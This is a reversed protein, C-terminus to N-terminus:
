SAMAGATYSAIERILQQAEANRGELDNSLVVLVFPDGQPPWVIAADNEICGLGYGEPMEGTKNACQYGAPLGSPIKGRVTQGKLIALMKGSAEENVLKGEAIDSLIAAVDAASTYNDDTPNSELMKRGLHTSLYGHRECFANVADKGAQTNGQGLADILRNCAENSSVQIMQELVQRLEGGYSEGFPIYMDKSPPFCMYEYVAGMIFLKIVSASRLKDDGRCTSLRDTGLDKVAVGWHEGMLERTALYQEYILGAVGAMETDEGAAAGADQFMAQDKGAFYKDIGDAIGQAMRTQMASDQMAVDDHQNTMFGMELIMVPIRSWNIGTMSDTTQIGLDAFGTAACYAGLIDEALLRSDAYLHSVYPNEPSMTMALAGSTNSNDSGNAHIRVYIEGGEDAAMLARESNSIAAENDERTMVVEYGRTILEEKLLLSITLNLQYEPAGTFRGTTGSTCKAKTQSSGPAVPEPASMDVWSGQHGPDIAVVHTIKQETLQKIGTQMAAETVSETMMETETQTQAGVAETTEEAETIKKDWLAAELAAEVKGSAEKACGATLVVPICICILSLIKRFTTM